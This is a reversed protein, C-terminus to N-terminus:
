FSAISFQVARTNPHANYEETLVIVSLLAVHKQPQPQM